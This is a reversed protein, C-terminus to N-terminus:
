QAKFYTFRLGIIANDPSWGRTDKWLVAPRISVAMNAIQGLKLEFRPGHGVYAQHHTGLAFRKGVAKDTLLLYWYDSGGNEYIAFASYGGRAAYAFSGLRAKSKAQEVGGGIGVSLWPLPKAYLGGYTQRYSRSYQAWGFAGFRKSLSEKGFDRQAWVVNTQEDRSGSNKVTRYSESFVFTEQAYASSAAFAIVVFLSKM